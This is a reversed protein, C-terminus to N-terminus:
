IVVGVAMSEHTGNRQWPHNWFRAKSELGLTKDTALFHDKM